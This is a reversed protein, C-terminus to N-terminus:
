IEYNDEREEPFLGNEDLEISCYGCICVNNGISAKAGERITCYKDDKSVNYSVCQKGCTCCYIRKAEIFIKFIQNLMFKWYIETAAKLLVILTMQEEKKEM